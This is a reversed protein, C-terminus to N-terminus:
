LPLYKSYYDYIKLDGYSGFNYNRAYIGFFNLNPIFDTRSVTFIKTLNHPDPGIYFSLMSTDESDDFISLYKVQEYVVPMTKYTGVLDYYPGYKDIRLVLKGSSLIRVALTIFQAIGSPNEGIAIGYEYESFLINDTIPLLRSIFQGGTQPIYTIAINTYDYDLSPIFFVGIGNEVFYHGAENISFDIFPFPSIELWPEYQTNNPFSVPPSPFVTNVLTADTAISLYGPLGPTFTLSGNAPDLNTAIDSFLIYSLRTNLINATLVLVIEAGASHAAATTGEQARLCDYSSVPPPIGSVAIPGNIAIFLEDDILFYFPDNILGTIDTFEINTVVSNIGSRLTTKFTNQVNFWRM